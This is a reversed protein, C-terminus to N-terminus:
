NPRSNLDAGAASAFPQWTDTKSARVRGQWRSQGAPQSVLPSDTRASNRAFAAAQKGSIPISINFHLQETRDALHTATRACKQLTASAARSGGFM